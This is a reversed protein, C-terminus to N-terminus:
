TPVAGQASSHRSFFEVRRIQRSSDGDLHLDVPQELRIECDAFPVNQVHADSVSAGRLLNWMTRFREAPRGSFLWLNLEGHPLADSEPFQIMGGAYLRINSAVLAWVQTEIERVHSSNARRARIQARVGPWARLLRVTQLAYDVYAFHRTLRRRRRNELQNVVKADVGVGAWLVFTRDMGCRGLDMATPKSNALHQACRRIAGPDTLRFRPMGIERALVNATGTPILGLATNSGALGPAALGISGDGGALFLADFGQAATQASLNRLHDASQSPVVEIQWGQAELTRAAMQALQAPPYRGASPNFILRGKPM